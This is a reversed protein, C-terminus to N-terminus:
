HQVSESVLIRECISMVVPMVHEVILFTIGNHNVQKIMGIVKDTEAQTLGAMCEDLLIIEPNTALAKVLELNKQDALTLNKNITLAKVQLDSFNLLKDTEIRANTMPLRNLSALLVTEYVSIDSFIQPIQFTRVVGLKCIQYPSLSHIPRDKFLVEGEDLRQFGSILDFLTTKGSGNPGIIGLIEGKKVSFSVKMVASLRGFSKSVNKVHLIDTYVERKGLM